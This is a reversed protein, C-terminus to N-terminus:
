SSKSPEFASSVHKFFDFCSSAIRCSSCLLLLWTLDKFPILQASLRALGFYLLKLPLYITESRFVFKICLAPSLILKSKRRCFPCNFDLFSYTPCIKLFQRLETGSRRCSMEHSFFVVCFLVCGFVNCAVALHVAM